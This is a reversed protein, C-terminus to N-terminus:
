TKLVDGGQWTRSFGADDDFVLAELDRFTVPCWWLTRDVVRSANSIGEECQKHRPLQFHAEALGINGVSVSMGAAQASLGADLSPFCEFHGSFFALSGCIMM